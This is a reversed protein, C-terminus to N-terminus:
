IKMLVLFHESGSLMLSSLKLNKLFKNILFIMVLNKIKMMSVLVFEMFRIKLLEKCYTKLESETLQNIDAGALSMLKDERYSM